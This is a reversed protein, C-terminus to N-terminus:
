FDQPTASSSTGAPLEVGGTTLSGPSYTVSAAAGSTATGTRTPGLTLIIRRTTPDWSITSGAFALTQNGQTYRGNGTTGVQLSGFGTTGCSGTATISVVNPNGNFTVTLDSHTYPGSPSTFTSCVSEPDLADSFTIVIRDGPEALGATGVNELAVDVVEPRVTISRTASTGTVDGTRTAVARLQLTGAPLDTVLSYVGAVPVTVPAGVQVWGSTSSHEFQVSIIAAVPHTATASLTVSTSSLVTTADAPATLTVTPPTLDLEVSASRIEEVNGAVDTSRFQVTHTASTSLTVSTGTTWSSFTVGDTATRYETTAVGSRDDTASLTLTTAALQTGSPADSTTVPAIRDVVVDGPTGEVGSWGSTDTARVEVTYPGDLELVSAAVPLHWTVPAADQPEAMLDSFATRWVAASVWADTADLSRGDPDIVRVEVATIAGGATPGTGDGPTASGCIGAGQSCADAWGTANVASGSPFSVSSTPPRRVTVPGGPSGATGTWVGFAPVVAYRWTEGVPQTLTCSTGTVDTCSAGVAFPGDEDQGDIRYGVVTSSTATLQTGLIPAPDWSLLVQDGAVADTPADAAALTAAPAAAAGAGSTLWAALAPAATVLVLTLSIATVVVTGTIRTVDAIRPLRPRPRNM